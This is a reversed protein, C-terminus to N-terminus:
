QTSTESQSPDRRDTEQGYGTLAVLQVDHGLRNRLRRAVEYGDIDRLGIDVLVLDPQDSLALAMGERWTAGACTAGSSDSRWLSSTAGTTTIRSSWSEARAGEVPTNARAGTGQRVVSRAKGVPALRWRTGQVGCCAAHRHPAAHDKRTRVPTGQGCRQSRPWALVLLLLCSPFSTDPRGPLRNGTALATLAQPVM